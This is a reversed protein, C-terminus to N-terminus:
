GFEIHCNQFVQDSQRVSYGDDEAWLTGPLSPDSLTSTLRVCLSGESGPARQASSSPNPVGLHGM